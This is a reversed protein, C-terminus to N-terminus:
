TGLIKEISHFSLGNTGLCYLPVRHKSWSMQLFSFVWYGLYNEPVNQPVLLFQIQPFLLIRKSLFQNFNPCPTPNTMQWLWRVANTVSSTIRFTTLLRSQCVAFTSGWGGHYLLWAISEQQRSFKIQQTCSIAKKQAEGYFPHSNLEWKRHSFDSIPDNKIFFVPYNNRWMSSGATETISPPLLRTYWALIRIVNVRGNLWSFLHSVTACESLNM